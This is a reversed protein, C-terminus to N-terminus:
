LAIVAGYVNDQNNNNNNYAAHGCRHLLVGGANVNPYCFSVFM